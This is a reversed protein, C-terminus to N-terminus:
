KTSKKKSILLLLVGLIFSLMSIILLMLEYCFRRDVYGPIFIKPNPNEVEYILDFDKFFIIGTKLYFIFLAIGFATLCLAIYYRKKEKMNM